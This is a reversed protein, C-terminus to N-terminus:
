EAIDSGFDLEAPRAIRGSEIRIQAPGFRIARSMVCICGGRNRRIRFRDAQIRAIRKGECASRAGKGCDGRLGHVRRLHTLAKVLRLRICALREVERRIQSLGVECQRVHRFCSSEVERLRALFVIARERKRRAIRLNQSYTSEKCGVHPVDISAKRGRAASGRRAAAAQQRSERIHDRVLIQTMNPNM